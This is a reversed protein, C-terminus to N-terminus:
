DDGTTKRQWWKKAVTEAKKKGFRIAMTKLIWMVITPLIFWVLIVLVILVALFIILWIWWDM